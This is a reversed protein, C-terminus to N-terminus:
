DQDMDELADRVAKEIKPILERVRVMRHVRALKAPDARIERELKRKLSRELGAMRQPNARLEAEVEQKIERKAQERAEDAQDSAEFEEKAWEFLETQSEELEIWETLYYDKTDKWGSIAEKGVDAAIEEQMTWKLWPQKALMGILKSAVEKSDEESIELGNYLTELTVGQVATAAATPATLDIVSTRSGTRKATRQPPM